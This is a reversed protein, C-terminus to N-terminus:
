MTYKHVMKILKEVNGERLEMWSLLGKEKIYTINNRKRKKLETLFAM